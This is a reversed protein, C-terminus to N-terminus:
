EVLRRLVVSHRDSVAQSERSCFIKPEIQWLVTSEKGGTMWIYGGGGTMIGTMWIDGDCFQM